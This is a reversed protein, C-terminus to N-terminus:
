QKAIGGKRIPATEFLFIRCGEDWKALVFAATDTTGGLNGTRLAYWDSKHARGTSLVAAIVLPARRGRSAAKRPNLPFSVPTREPEARQAARVQGRERFFLPQVKSKGTLAKRAQITDRSKTRTLM